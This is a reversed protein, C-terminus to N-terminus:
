FFYQLTLDLIKWVFLLDVQLNLKFDWHKRDDQLLWGSRENIGVKRSKNSGYITIIIKTFVLVVKDTCIM